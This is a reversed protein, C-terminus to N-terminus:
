PNRHFCTGSALPNSGEQFPIPMTVDTGYPRGFITTGTPFVEDQQYGYLRMMRRLDWCRRSIPGYIGLLASAINDESALYDSTAGALSTEAGATLGAGFAYIRHLRDHNYQTGVSTTSVLEPTLNFMAM